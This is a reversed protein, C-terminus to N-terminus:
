KRLNQMYEICLIKAFSMVNRTVIKAMSETIRRTGMKRTFGIKVMASYEPLWLLYNRDKELTTGVRDELEYLFLTARRAVQHNISEAVGNTQHEHKRSQERLTPM